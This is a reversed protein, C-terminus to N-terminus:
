DVVGSDGGFDYGWVAELIRARSLAMNPNILLYRLVEFETPTLVVQAQGRWVEHRDEDLAADAYRWVTTPELNEGDVLNSVRLVVEDLDSPKAIFDGRGLALATLRNDM